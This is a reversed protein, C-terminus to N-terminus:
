LDTALSTLTLKKMANQLSLIRMELAISSRTRVNQVMVVEM